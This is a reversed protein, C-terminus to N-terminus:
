YIWNVPESLVEDDGRWARIKVTPLHQPIHLDQIIGFVERYFRYTQALITSDVYEGDVLIDYGDANSVWDARFEFMVYPQPRHAADAWQQTITVVGQTQPAVLPQLTQANQVPAVPQVHTAETPQEDLVHHDSDCAILMFSLTIISLLTKM